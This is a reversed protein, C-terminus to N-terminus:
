PRMRAQDQWRRDFPLHHRESAELSVPHRARWSAELSVGAPGQEVHLRQWTVRERNPVEFRSGVGRAFWADRLAPLM